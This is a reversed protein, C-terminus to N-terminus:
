VEEFMRKKFDTETMRVKWSEDDTRMNELNNDGNVYIIDFERDHPKIRHKAFYADLAANSEILNDTINRWIILARRGDPLVGEVQKFAYIGGTDKVLRVSGEYSGKEDSVANFYEVASQRSVSLGILYNFTEVLEIVKEKIENKETVKLKYEFPTKFYDLKLLSGESEIDLMYNVLYEEGFLAQMQLGKDSLQINSLADEYSELRIYKMIHSVGTKRSSPKGSDWDNSYIIKMVRSKTVTNFYEGMEVLIYKRKGNDERNLNIVAHGTTGSGAFFDFIIEKETANCVRLCDMVAFISKPFLFQRNKGFIDTLLNTGHSGAAYSAKDWWTGPLSGEDNRYNRRYVQIDDNNIEIKIHDPYQKIRDIGWKWVKEEGTSTIPYIIREDGM